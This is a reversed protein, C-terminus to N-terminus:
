ESRLAAAPSLYAASRGPVSSVIVALVLAVTAFLLLATTPMVPESLVGIERALVRWGWRGLILGVPIGIVLAVGVMTVGAVLVTLWRQRPRMGLAALLAHERRHSRVAAIVGHALVILAALVFLGGIVVPGMGLRDFAAVDAPKPDVHVDINAPEDDHRAV